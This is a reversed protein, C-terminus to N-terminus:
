TVLARLVVIIVGDPKRTALFDCTTGELPLIHWAEAFPEAKKCRGARDLQVPDIMPHM